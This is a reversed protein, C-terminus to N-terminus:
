SDVGLLKKLTPELQEGRANTSVINGEKDLLFMAPIARIGFLIGFENQWYKGDFHQPWVMGRAATFDTMKKKAKVMKEAAQEASDLPTGPRMRKVTTADVIGPNEFAIGVIEFGRDHYKQYNAVVNPIEGICPGCWTAWFDVLVVKGRLANIDVDRGDAATFKIKGINAKQNALTELTDTAGQKGVENASAAISRLLKEFEPVGLGAAAYFIGSELNRVQPVPGGNRAFADIAAQLKEFDAVTKGEYVDESLVAFEAELRQEHSATADDRVTRLLRTLEASWKERAGTDYIVLDVAPREDFGPKFGQIFSPRREALALIVRARDPGTTNSALFKLAEDRFKRAAEDAARMTESRKAAAVAPTPRALQLVADVTPTEAAALRTVFVFSVGLMWRSLVAPIKM